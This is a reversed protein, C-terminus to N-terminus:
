CEAHGQGLHGLDWILFGRPWPVEEGATRTAWGDWAWSRESQARIAVQLPLTRAPPQPKDTSM